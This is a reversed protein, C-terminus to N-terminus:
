SGSRGASPGAGGIKVNKYGMVLVLMAILSLAGLVALGILASEQTGSENGVVTVCVVCAALVLSMVAAFAVRYVPELMVPDSLEVNASAGTLAATAESVAAAKAQPDTKGEATSKEVAAKVVPKAREVTLSSHEAIHKSLASIGDEGAATLIRAMTEPKLAESPPATLAVLQTYREVPDPAIKALEGRISM